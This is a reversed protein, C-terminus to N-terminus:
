AAAALGWQRLLRKFQEARRARLLELLATPQPPPASTHYRAYLPVCPGTWTGQSQPQPQEAEVEAQEQAQEEAAPEEAAPEESAPQAGRSTAADILWASPMPPPASTHYRAYLPLCPGTWPRQPQPQPQEAEVEAEEEQVKEVEEQEVGAVDEEEGMMDKGEEPPAVAVADEEEEDEEQEQVGPAEFTAAATADKDEKAALTPSTGSVARRPLSGPRPSGAGGSCARGPSDASGCLGELRRVRRPSSLAAADAGDGDLPLLSIGFRSAGSARKPASPFLCRYEKASVAVTDAIENAFRAKLNEVVSRALTIIVSGDPSAPRTALLALLSEPRCAFPGGQAGSQSQPFDAHHAMAVAM